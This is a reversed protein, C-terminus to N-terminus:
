GRCCCCGQSSCRRGGEEDMGRRRDDTGPQQHHGLRWRWPGVRAGVPSLRLRWMRGPCTCRTPVTEMVVMVVLLLLLLDGRLRRSGKIVSRELLSRSTDVTPTIVYFPHISARISPNFISPIFPCITPYTPPHISQNICLHISKYISPHTCPHHM